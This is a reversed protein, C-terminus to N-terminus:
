PKFRKRTTGDELLDIVVGSYNENIEQGMLNYSSVVNTEDSQIQVSKVPTDESFGDYDVQKLKYYSLGEYPAQDTFEYTMEWDTTGNGDVMGITEFDWGNQSRQVLFYDNERESVTKWILKVDEENLVYAELEGFTVGLVLMGCVTNVGTAGNCKEPPMNHPNGGGCWNVTAQWTGDNQFSGSSLAAGAGTVTGGAQNKWAGSTEVCSNGSIYLSGFNELNGSVVDIKSFNTLQVDATNGFKLNGSNVMLYGGYIHLQGFVDFGAEVYMESYGVITVNGNVAINLQNISIYNNVYFQGDNVDITGGGPGSWLLQGQYAVVEMHSGGTVTISTSVLDVIHKIYIDDGATPEPPICGCSTLGGDTSWIAPDTWNGDAMTTYTAAQSSFLTLLFIGSLIIVQKKLLLQVMKTRNKLSYDIAFTTTAGGAFPNLILM